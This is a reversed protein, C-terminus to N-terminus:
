ARHRLQMPVAIWLTAIATVFVATLIVAAARGVAIDLVLLLGSALTLGLGALAILTTTHGTRVLERKHGGQFLLRHAAVPAVLLASSLAASLLTVVYVGHRFGDLEGFGPNFALALLFGLLIQVGTLLVRLEQLLEAFNRDARQLPAEPRHDSNWDDDHRRGPTRADTATM